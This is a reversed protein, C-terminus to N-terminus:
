EIAEFSIDWSSKFPPLRDLCYKLQKFVQHATRPASSEITFAVHFKISEKIDTASHIRNWNLNINDTPDHLQWIEKSTDVLRGNRDIVRGPNNWVFHSKNPPTDDRLQILFQEQM